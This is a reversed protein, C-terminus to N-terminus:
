ERGGSGERDGGRLFIRGTNETQSPYLSSDFMHFALVVTHWVLFGDPYVFMGLVKM